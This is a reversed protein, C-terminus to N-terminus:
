FPPRQTCSGDGYRAYKKGDLVIDVGSKQYAVQRTEGNNFTLILTGQSDDGEASWQGGSGSQGAATGGSGSSYIEGGRNFNGDSCLNLLEQRSYSGGVSSSYFYLYQGAVAENVPAAQPETFTMSRALAEVRPKLQPYKEETTLGLVVPANGYPSLVAIVRARIRYGDSSNGTMEGALGGASGASFSELQAAPMLQLGQEELGERYGERLSELSTKRVFRVVMMGAETDSGLILNGSREGVKWGPPPAFSLGWRDHTYRRGAAAAPTAAKATPTASPRTEGGKRLAAILEPTAGRAKLRSALASTVTFSIGRETVLNILRKSPVGGELLKTIEVESLGRMRGAPQQAGATTRSEPPPATARAPEEPPAEEEPATGEQTAREAGPAKGGHRTFTLPSVIDGGSLILQAGQLRYNYADAGDESTLVLKNGQVRWQIGDGTFSGSGDANLVMEIPFGQFTASWTGILASSQQAAAVATGALLLLTLRLFGFLM